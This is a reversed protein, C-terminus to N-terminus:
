SIATNGYVSIYIHMLARSSVGNFIREHLFTDWSIHVCDQQAKNTKTTEYNHISEHSNVIWIRGRGRKSVRISKLGLM